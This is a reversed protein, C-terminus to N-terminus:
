LRAVWFPLRACHMIPAFFWAMTRGSALLCCVRFLRSPAEKPAAPWRQMARGTTIRTPSACVQSGSRISRVLVRLILPPVSGPVSMPGTIEQAARSRTLPRIALPM